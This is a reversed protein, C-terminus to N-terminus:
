TARSCGHAADCNPPDLFIPTCIDNAFIVSEGCEDIVEPTGFVGSDRATVFGEQSSCSIESDLDIENLFPKLFPIKDVSLQQGLSPRTGKETKQIQQKLMFEIESSDCRMQPEVDLGAKLLM